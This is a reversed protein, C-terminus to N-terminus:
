YASSELLIRPLSFKWFIILQPLKIPVLSYKEQMLIKYPSFKFKSLPKFNGVMFVKLYKDQELYSTFIYHAM